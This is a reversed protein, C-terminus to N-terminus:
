LYKYLQIDLFILIKNCFIKRLVEIIIQNILILILIGLSSMKLKICYCQRVQSLKGEDEPVVRNKQGLITFVANLDAETVETPLLSQISAKDNDTLLGSSPNDVIKRGWKYCWAAFNSWASPLDPCQNVGLQVLKGVIVDSAPILETTKGFLKDMLGDNHLSEFCLLEDLQSNNEVKADQQIWKGIFISNINKKLNLL